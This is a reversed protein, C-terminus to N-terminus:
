RLKNYIFMGIQYLAWPKTLLLNQIPHYKRTHSCNPSYSGLRFVLNVGTEHAGIYTVQLITKYLIRQAPMKDAGNHSSLSWKLNKLANWLKVKWRLFGQNVTSNESKLRDKGNKSKIGKRNDGFLGEWRLKRRPEISNQIMPQQWPKRTPRETEGCAGNPNM